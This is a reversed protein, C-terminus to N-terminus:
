RRRGADLGAGALMREIARDPRANHIAILDRIAAATEAGAREEALALFLAADYGGAAARQEFARFFSEVGAGGAAAVAIVHGCAYVADWRAEAEARALSLRQLSQACTSRADEFRRQQEAPTWFGARRMALSALAEALGEHIWSPVADNEPRAAQRLHAMEHATARRFVDRADPSAARWGAGSLRLVIQGPLADGDYGYRGEASLDGIALFIEADGIGDLAAAIRPAIRMLEEGIWAPTGDDALLRIGGSDIPASTGVYVFAPHRHPSRWNSFQARTEGFASAQAGDAPAITLAADARAGGVFPLFHGTYVVVGGAIPTFPRYDKAPHSEAADVAASLAAIKGSGVPLIVDRGDRVALRAGDGRIRWHRARYGDLSPGLDVADVAPSFEYAVVWRLPDAQELRIRM